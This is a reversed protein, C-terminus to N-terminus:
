IGTSGFGGAGRRTTSLDNEDVMNVFIRCLSPHCIQLLRTHREVVYQSDQSSSSKLWRFAGILSGRYGSDIIGTHNALMLPTKSISSRPHVLFGTPDNNYSIMECKVQLDLFKADINPKEFIVEEPIFLDFGANPFPDNLMSANHADIQNKYLEYLNPNNRNVALNLVVFPSSSQAAASNIVDLFNM